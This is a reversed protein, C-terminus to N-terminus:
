KLYVIKKIQRMEDFDCRIFYIGSVINDGHDDVGNWVIQYNGEDKFGLDFRKIRKGLSNFIDLRVNSPQPIFYPIITRENFPNPYNQHLVFSDSHGKNNRKEVVGTNVSFHVDVRKEQDGVDVRITMTSDNESVIQAEVHEDTERRPHLVIVYKMGNTSDVPSVSFRRYEIKSDIQVPSLVVVDMEVPGNKVIFHNETKESMAGVYRLLWSFMAPKDTELDDAVIVVDPKVYLFHRHFRQLGAPPKYINGADGIIYDLEESTEAEIIQSRAGMSFVANRDFYTKGEGLQGIGNILITSHYRTWKPKSYGDDEALWRGYAFINFHNVDPHGHGNVIGHYSPMGDYLSQVKHGHFPGCKFGVMVADGEWSSRSTIWGTDEFHNFEPLDTDPAVPQISEDYWLLSGWGVPNKPGIERRFMETALWQFNGNRTESAVNFLIHTPGHTGYGYSSTDGYRMANYDPDFGPLSSYLIFNGVNQLWPSSEYYDIGLLDKAMKTYRTLFETMLGYYNHGETSSGDRSFLQFAEQFVLYGQKIFDIAESAEGYLAFGAAALGAHEQQCHNSLYREKHQPNKAMEEAQYILKNRIIEREEPQLQDYLWDYGLSIGMLCDGAGLSRNGDWEPHRCVELMWEKASNFYGEDESLLYALAQWPVAQGNQRTDTESSYDASPQSDLYSDAKERVVQWYDKHTGSIKGKLETIRDSNLLLRPHIGSFGALRAPPEWDQNMIHSYSLTDQRSWVESSLVVALFLM